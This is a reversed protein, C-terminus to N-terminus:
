EDWDIRSRDDFAAARAEKGSASVIYACSRAKESSMTVLKEYWSKASVYNEREYETRALGMVATASKPDLKLAQQYRELAGTTDSRLFRLNALNVISAVNKGSAGAAFQVEAKDYLGFSAYLLGLQNRTEPNDKKALVGKLMNERDAIQYSVYKQWSEVYRAMVRSKDPSVIRTDDISAVPEYLEWAARVPYLKATGVSNAKRWERVGEQWAKLFGDHIMTIEVPVWLRGEFLISDGSSSFYRSSNQPDVGPSFAAYIHGPVTIFATEIGVAELLACYLVTLDDCDGARYTLSQGPFQLYDLSSRLESLKAYPSAPDVVYNMGYLSLTEFIALAQRFQLIYSTADTERVSGAVNKAFNLIVPDKATVFSAAKRDDDWTLANRYLVTLTVTEKKRTEEKGRKYSIEIEASAKSGETMGLIAQNFLAYLPIALEQGKRLSEAVTYTKPADMFSKVFLSVRVDQIDSSEDNRITITGFANTDYHKYFVPFVPYLNMQRFELKSPATGGPSFRLTLYGDAGRYLGPTERYSAGLGLKLSPTLRFSIGTQAEAWLNSGMNEGYIGLNYGAGAGLELGLMGVLTIPYSLSTGVRIMSLAEGSLTPVNAYGIVAGGRLFPAFPLAWDGQLSAGGGTTYPVKGDALPGLPISASPTLSLQLGEQAALPALAVALVVFLLVNKM